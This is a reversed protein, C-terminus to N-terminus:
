YTFSANDGDIDDSKVLFVVVQKKKLLDTLPFKIGCLNLMCCLDTKACNNLFLERYVKGIQRDRIEQDKVFQINKDHRDKDEKSVAVCFCINLNDLSYAQCLSLMSHLKFLSFCMQNVAKSIFSPTCSSKLEVFLLGEKSGDSVFAVGDCEKDFFTSSRDTFCPMNKTLCQDFGVFRAARFDIELRKFTANKNAETVQWICLSGIPQFKNKSLDFAECFNNSLM